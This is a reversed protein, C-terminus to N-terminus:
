GDPRGGEEGVARAAEIAQRIDTIRACAVKAMALEDDFDHLVCPPRKVLAAMVDTRLAVTDAETEAFLQVHWMEGAQHCAAVMFYWRRSTTGDTPRWVVPGFLLTRDVSGALLYAAVKACVDAGDGKVEAQKRKVPKRRKAEGM